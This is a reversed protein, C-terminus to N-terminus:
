EAHQRIDMRIGLRAEATPVLASVALRQTAMLIAPVESHLSAAMLEEHSERHRGAAMLGPCAVVPLLPEMPQNVLAVFLPTAKLDPSVQATGREAM